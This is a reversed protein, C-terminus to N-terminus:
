RGTAKEMCRSLAAYYQKARPTLEVYKSRQDDAKEVYTILGLKRLSKLRRHVTSPSTDPECNMAQLVTVPEGNAWLAALANLLREEVPDLVPVSPLGRIAQVLNLFRLYSQTM